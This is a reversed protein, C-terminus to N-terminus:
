WEVNEHSMAHTQILGVKCCEVVLASLVFLYPLGSLIMVVGGKRNWNGRCDASFGVNKLERRRHRRPYIDEDM